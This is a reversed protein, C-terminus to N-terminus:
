KYSEQYQAQRAEVEYPNASGKVAWWWLYKVMYVLKGDRRMQELHKREHAILGKDNECGPRLYLTDWLSAWGDFGMINMYWLIPGTATM